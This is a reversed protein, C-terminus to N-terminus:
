RVTERILKRKNTRRKQKGKEVQVALAPNRICSNQNRVISMLKKINTYGTVLRKNELMKNHEHILLELLKAKVNDDTGRAIIDLAATRLREGYEVKAAWYITNFPHDDENLIQAFQAPAFGIATAVETPTLGKGALEQIKEKNKEVRTETKM